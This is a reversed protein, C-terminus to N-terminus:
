ERRIAFLSESNAFKKIFNFTKSKSDSLHIIMFIVRSWTLDPWSWTLDPWSWTLDKRMPGSRIQDWQIQDSRVQDQNSRIQDQDSRLDSWIMWYHWIADSTLVASYMVNYYFCLRCLEKKGKIDTTNCTSPQPRLPLNWNNDELTRGIWPLYASKKLLEGVLLLSHDLPFKKLHM